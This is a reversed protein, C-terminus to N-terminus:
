SLEFAGRIGPQMNASAHSDSACFCQLPTIVAWYKLPLHSM